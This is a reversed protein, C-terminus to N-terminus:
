HLGTETTINRGGNYFQRSLEIIYYHGLNAAENGMVNVRRVYLIGNLLYKKEVDYIMVIKLATNLQSIQFIFESLVNKELVWCSNM